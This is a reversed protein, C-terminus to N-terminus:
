SNYNTDNFFIEEINFKDDDSLVDSVLEEYIFRDDIFKYYTFGKHDNDSEYVVGIKMNNIEVVFKWVIKKYTEGIDEILKVM